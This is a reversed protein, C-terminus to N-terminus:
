LGTRAAESAAILSALTKNDIGRFNALEKIVAELPKRAHGEILDHSVVTPPISDLCGSLADCIKRAVFISIRLNDSLPPLDRLEREVQNLWDVCFEQGLLNLLRKSPVM